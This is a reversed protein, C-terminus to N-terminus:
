EEPRPSPILDHLPERLLRVRTDRNILMMEQIVEESVGRTRLTLEQEPTLEFVQDTARLRLLIQEETLDASQMALVEDLTVFQDSNIDFSSAYQAQSATAPNARAEYVAKLAEARDHDVIRDSSAALLYDSAASNILTHLLSKGGTGTIAESSNDVAGQPASGSLGQCGSGV